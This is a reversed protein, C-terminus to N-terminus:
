NLVNKNLINSWFQSSESFISKFYFAPFFSKTSPVVQQLSLKTAESLIDWFPRLIDHNRSIVVFVLKQRCLQAVQHSTQSTQLPRSPM